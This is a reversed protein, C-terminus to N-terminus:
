PREMVVFVGQMSGYHGPFTCLYKYIGAAPADFELVYEEGPGLMPTYAIVEASRDAPQYDTEKAAIAATAFEELNVGENLLTWNHGMTEKPQTGQNSFTLKVRQGEYVDLRKVSFQMADNGAISLEAVDPIEVAPSQETAPAAEEKQVQEGGCATAGLFLAALAIQYTKM